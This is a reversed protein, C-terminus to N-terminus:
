FHSQEALKKALLRSLFIGYYPYKQVAQMWESASIAVLHGNSKARITATRRNGLLFSMEGLFINTNNLTALVKNNTFVEFEGGIIYYLTNSKENEQFVLDGPKFDIVRSDLFGKPITRKSNELHEISFRAENGQENYSLKKVYVRSMFIGRGHLEMATLMDDPNPLTTTDFGKGEDCVSFYSEREGIEYKLIVRKADVFPNKCKEKILDVIDNGDELWETKERYGIECNGHEVANMLLEVLAFKLGYKAQIDILNDRYLFNSVLEAYAELMLPDNKIVLSGQHGLERFLGTQLLLQQNSNLIRVLHPLLTKVQLPTMISFIGPINLNSDDADKAVALIRVDFLLPEPAIERIISVADIEPDDLDFLVFQPIEYFLHSEVSSREIVTNLELEEGLEKFLSNKVEEILENKKCVVTFTIM